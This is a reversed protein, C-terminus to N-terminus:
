ELDVPQDFIIVGPTHLAALCDHCVYRRHFVTEADTSTREAQERLWYVIGKGEEIAKVLAESGPHEARVVHAGWSRKTGRKFFTQCSTCMSYHLKEVIQLRLGQLPERVPATIRETFRFRREGSIQILGVGLRSAIGIEDETFGDPRYDALYTRDAFVSYGSAQGVSTMFPQTGRKVEIAIVEAGGSLRGGVDRLGVVDIRGHRLGKDIGSAFLDWRRTAWREAPQYFDRERLM